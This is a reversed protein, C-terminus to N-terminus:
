LETTASGGLKSIEARLADIQLQQAKVAELLLATLKDYKVTKFGAFASPTVLQPLVAEVEQAIVGVEEKDTIGLDLATQNPRFTVGRLSMVKAIPDQIEVIDKKLNVDSYYATIEGTSTIAGTVTLAGTSCALSTSVAGTHTGSTNSSAVIYGSPNTANYPTFGLAAQKGNFTNWDASTLYGAVSTTAAPMSIVGATAVVPGTATIAAKAATTAMADTYQTITSSVATGVVSIGTGATVVTIPATGDFSVGQITRATQLKTASPVNSIAAIASALEADTAMANQIELLTDFAAGAGNTVAAIAAAQAANAKTTADSAAASIAESKATAIASTNASVALADTYQTITTAVVGGTVTIGTGATIAAKAMADTYQTITNTIVGTTSNYSLGTGASVAGRARANTFYLNTTGETIEDTNDKLAVAATIASNRNTVETAIATSIASDRATAEAAVKSTADSAATSIAQSKATAIATDRATAEAAVKSTADSAATSIAGSVASANASVAMADTYQTITNTIVGTTSNYSLGTGASVATRAGATTIFGSDNTLGSTATAITPKNSLDAYSGSSAVTSLGLNTVANAKQTTSLAQSAVDVRLRNGLATATSTAFSADNGLATALENLTDLAAPASAVLAAVSTDTYTKATALSTAIATNRNNVETAIGSDAYSKASALTSADNTARTTAETAIATANTAEAAQARTTETTISAANTAEAAQARATETAVTTDAYAKATVLNSAIATNRATVEASVAATAFAEATTIAAAEASQARATETSVANTAFTEATALTSADAANRASVESSILGDAYSKATALVTAGSSFAASDTYTKASALATASSSDVYTTSAAGSVDAVALTVAGTRGAVTQVPAAASAMANTYQTVTSSIVGTSSNYSVGTGASVAARAQANTFYKNTAGVDSIDDSSLTRSGGLQVSGGNITISNNALSSNPISGLSILGSTSNYSVGSATSASLAGRARGNTFFLNTTGEALDDTGTVMPLYTSGNNTFTWKQSGENWRLAVKADDGRNIEVGANQSAPGTWDSNLTIINDALSIANSNVTTTTGNVTMNGAIVVGDATVTLATSGDVTVTVTGTGADVVQVSSNGQQITTTSVAAFQADVYYKSAVDSNSVPSTVGTIKGGNMNINNGFNVAVGDGAVIRKGSAITMTGDINVGTTSSGFQLLGQGATTIRMNQDPDASFTMTGSTNTIVQTGNVYLSGPGVFIHRFPMAASGIDYTNSLSPIISRVTADGTLTLGAFSPTGTTSISQTATIVGTGSNYSIGNGASLAARARATTFYQNTGEAVDSTSLVVDGTQSNVTTVGGIEVISAVGDDKKIFIRGDHTNIAVEGLALQATSPVKGATSSRKLIIQNAM